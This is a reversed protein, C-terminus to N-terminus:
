SESRAVEPDATVWYLNAAQEAPFYHDGELFTLSSTVVVPPGKQLAEALIQNESRWTNVPDRRLAFAEKGRGLALWLTLTLLM